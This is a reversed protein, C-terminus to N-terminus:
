PAEGDTPDIATLTRSLLEALFGVQDRNLLTMHYAPVASVTLEGEVHRRVSQAVVDGETLVGNPGVARILTVDGAYGGPSYTRYARWTALM